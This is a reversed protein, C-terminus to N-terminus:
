KWRGVTTFAVYRDWTTVGDTRSCAIAVSANSVNSSTCTMAVGDHGDYYNAVSVFSEKAKYPVPLNVTTTVTGIPIAANGWCIQIGNAYRIYNAGSSEVREIEKGKWFLGGDPKGVLDSENIGDKAFLQFGGPNTEYATSRFSLLPGKGSGYDYGIDVYETSQDIRITGSITGGRKPLFQGFLASLLNKVPM